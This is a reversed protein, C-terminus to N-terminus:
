RLFFNNSTIWSFVADFIGLICSAIVSVIIVVGTSSKTDDRSPWAVKDLETISQLVYQRADKRIFGVYVGLLLASLSAVLSSLTFGAGLIPYNNVRLFMFLDTLAYDLLVYLLLTAVIFFVAVWTLRSRM